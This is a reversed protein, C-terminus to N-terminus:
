SEVEDDLYKIQQCAGEGKLRKPFINKLSFLEGAMSLKEKFSAPPKM